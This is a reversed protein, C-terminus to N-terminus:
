TLKLIDINKEWVLSQFGIRKMEKEQEYNQVLKAIFKCLFLACGNGLIAGNQQSGHAHVMLPSENVVGSEFMFTGPQYIPIRKRGIKSYFFTARGYSDVIPQKGKEIEFIHPKYEDALKQKIKNRFCMRNM